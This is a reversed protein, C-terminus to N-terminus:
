FSQPFYGQFFDGDARATMEQLRAGGGCRAADHKAAAAKDLAGMGLLPRALFQGDRDISIPDLGDVDVRM